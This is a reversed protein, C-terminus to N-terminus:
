ILIHEAYIYDGDITKSRYISKNDTDSTQFFYGFIESSKKYRKLYRSDPTYDETSEVTNSISMRLFPQENISSVIYKKENSIPDIFIYIYSDPNLSVIIYTYYPTKVYNSTYGIFGSYSKDYMISQFNYTLIEKDIMFPSDLKDSYLRFPTYGNIMNSLGPLLNMAQIPPLEEEDDEDEEDNGEIGDFGEDNLHPFQIGQVAQFGPFSQFNQFGLSNRDIQTFISLQDIRFLIFNNIYGSFNSHNEEWTTYDTNEYDPFVTLFDSSLDVFHNFQSIVFRDAVFKVLPSSSIDDYHSLIEQLPVNNSVIDDTLNIIQSNDESKINLFTQIKIAKLEIDFDSVYKSYIYNWSKEYDPTLFPILSGDIIINGDENPEEQSVLHALFDSAGLIKKNLEYKKGYVELFTM